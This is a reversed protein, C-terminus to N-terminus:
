ARLCNSTRMCFASRSNRTISLGSSNRSTSDSVRPTLGEGQNKGTAAKEVTFGSGSYNDMVQETLSTAAIITWEKDDTEGAM